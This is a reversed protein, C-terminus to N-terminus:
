MYWVLESDLKMSKIVKLRSSKGAFNKNKPCWSSPGVFFQRPITQPPLSRWSPFNAHAAFDALKTMVLGMFVFRLFECFRSGNTVHPLSFLRSTQWNPGRIWWPSKQSGHIPIWGYTGWRCSLRGQCGHCGHCGSRAGPQDLTPFNTSGRFVPSKRPAVSVTGITKQDIDQKAGDLTMKLKKLTLVKFKSLTTTKQIWIGAPCSTHIKEYREKVMRLLLAKSRRLQAIQHHFITGWVVRMGNGERHSHDPFSVM